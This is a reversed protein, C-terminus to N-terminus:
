SEVIFVPLSLFNIEGRARGNSRTHVDDPLFKDLVDRLVAGLQFATGRLRCDQALIKTAKLPEQMNAGSAIVACVIAGASLGALQTTDCMTQNVIEETESKLMMTQNAIGVKVLDTDPDFGMSVAFKFKQLLCLNNNSVQQANNESWISFSLFLLM